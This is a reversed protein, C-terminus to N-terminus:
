IYAIFVYVLPFREGVYPFSEILCRERVQSLDHLQRTIPSEHNKTTYDGNNSVTTSGWLFTGNNGKTSETSTLLAGEPIFLVFDFSILDYKIFPIM